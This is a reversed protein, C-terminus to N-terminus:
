LRKLTRKKDKTMLKGKKEKKDAEAATESNECRKRNEASSKSSEPAGGAKSPKAHIETYLKARECYSDYQEVGTCTVGSFM